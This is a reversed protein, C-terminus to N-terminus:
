HHFNALPPRLDSEIWADLWRARVVRVTQAHTRAHEHETCWVADDVTIMACVGCICVSVRARM